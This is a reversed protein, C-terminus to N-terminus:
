QQIIGVRLRVGSATYTPTSANSVVAVYISTSGSAGKVIMNLGSKMAVSVGGLDKYDAAAVSVIGLIDRANADSITPASNESGFTNNASLFYIDIAAKQDDEDVVMLSHLIGLGDNVRVASAVAQTDAILDGSAYASTDLTLTVDVLTVGGVTVRDTTGPTTQDVGVKGIIATGAALVIGTLIAKLRGLVTNAAPSATVEGMANAGAGDGLVPMASFPGTGAGSEDWERATFASSAGDRISKTTAAGPM